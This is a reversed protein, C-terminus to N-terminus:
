LVPQRLDLNYTSFFLKSINIIILLSIVSFPWSCSLYRRLCNSCQYTECHKSSNRKVEYKCMGEQSNLNLTNELLSHANDIEKYFFDICEYSHVANILLIDKYVSINDYSQFCVHSGLARVM